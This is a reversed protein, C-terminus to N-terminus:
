RLPGNLDTIIKPKPPPMLIEPQLTSPRKTFAMSYMGLMDLIVHLEDATFIKREVIANFKSKGHFWEAGKKNQDYPHYRLFVAM